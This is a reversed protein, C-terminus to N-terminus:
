RITGYQWSPYIIQGGLGEIRTILDDTVDADIDVKLNGGNDANVNARELHVGATMQRGRSERLAQLLQSDIKQETPTRSSKETELAVIQSIAEGSLQQDQAMSRVRSDSNAKDKAVRSQALVPPMAKEWPLLGSLALLAACVSFLLFLLMTVSRSRRSRRRPRPFVIRTERDKKM